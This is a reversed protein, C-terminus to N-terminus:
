KVGGLFTGAGKLIEDLYSSNGNGSNMMGILDINSFNPGSAFPAMYPTGGGGGGSSYRQFMDKLYNSKKNGYEGQIDAADRAATYMLEPPMAKLGYNLMDQYRTWTDNSAKQNRNAQDTLLRELRDSGTNAFNNRDAASKAGLETLFDRQGAVNASSGTLGQAARLKNLKSLGQNAYYDYSDNYNTFLANSNTNAVDSTPMVEPTITPSPSLAPDIPLQAVGKSGTTTFPSNKVGYKDQVFNARNTIRNRQQDTTATNYKASLGTLIDRGQARNGAVPIQAQQNNLPMGGATARNRRPIMGGSAQNVYKMDVPM